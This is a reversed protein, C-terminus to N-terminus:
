GAPPFVTIGYAPALALIKEIEEQTPAAPADTAGIETGVEFFFKEIGGPRAIVIVVAEENGINAFLHPVNKAAHVLNGPGHEEVADGAQFRLYGRVVYFVEEENAHAHLPTGASPPVFIEFASYASDTEPATALVVYRSGAVNVVTRPAAFPASTDTISKM